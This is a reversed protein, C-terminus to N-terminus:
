KRQGIWGPIMAGLPQWLPLNQASVAVVAWTKLTVADNARPQDAPSAYARKEIDNHSDSARSSTDQSPSITDAFERHEGTPKKMTHM